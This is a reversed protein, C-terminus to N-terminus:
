PVAVLHTRADAVQEATPEDLVYGPWYITMLSGDGLRGETRMAADFRDADGALQHLVPLLFVFDVLNDVEFALCTEGVAAGDWVSLRRAHILEGVQPELDAAALAATLQDRTFTITHM